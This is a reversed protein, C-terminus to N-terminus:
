RKKEGHNKREEDAKAMEFEIEMEDPDPRYLYMIAHALFCLFPLFFSWSLFIDIRTQYSVQPLSQAVIFEFTIIGLFSIITGMMRDTKDVELCFIVICIFVLLIAGLVIKWLYYQPLRDVHLTVNFQAYSSAFIQYFVNAASYNQGTITWEPISFTESNFLDAAFV